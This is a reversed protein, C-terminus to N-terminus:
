KSVIMAANFADLASSQTSANTKESSNNWVVGVENTTKNRAFSWISNVNNLIFSKYHEKPSESYLFGLNRM